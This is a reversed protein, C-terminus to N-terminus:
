KKSENVTHKSGPGAECTSGIKLWLSLLERWCCSATRVQVNGSSLVGSHLLPFPAASGPSTGPQSLLLRARISLDVKLFILVPPSDLSCCFSRCLQAIVLALSPHTSPECVVEYTCPM